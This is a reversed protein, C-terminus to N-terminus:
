TEDIESNFMFWSMDKEFSTLDTASLYITDHSPSQDATTMYDPRITYQVLSVPELSSGYRNLGNWCRM